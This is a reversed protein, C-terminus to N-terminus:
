EARGSARSLASVFGPHPAAGLRRAAAIDAWAESWRGLGYFTQARGLYAAALDPRLSIARTYDRLALDLRGAARRLDARNSLAEPFDPRLELARDYDALAAGPEGLAARAAGRNYFVEADTPALEAAHDFERLAEPLRGATALAVGLNQRARPNAPRKAVTDEWISIATRYDRNRAVTTATLAVVVALLVMAPAPRRWGPGGPRALRRQIAWAAAVAATVVAALPLYMRHEAAVQTVLPALTSTPALIVFFWAGLFGLWPRRVSAFIVAALLLGILLGGALMAGAQAPDDIGYDLILPRPWFCLRLYRPVFVLQLQAYRWPSMGYGFGATAARGGTSALLSALLIWSAALGAYLPWRRRLAEAFGGALFIRDYLLALVPAAVVTEKTAVGAFCAAVAALSWWWGRLSGAARATCYVTLLLFLGAMSEARQVIYTVSETQLPHVTWLLAAALAFATAPPAAGHARLRPLLMTRRLLGFLSLAALVHVVVNVAHYGEVRAGGLAYNAALSLNLLPRGIVTAYRADFLPVTPPWLTRISPNDLIAPPDDFIFPGHLSGAYAVVGAAVILLAPAAVGRGAPAPLGTPSRPRLGSFSERPATM